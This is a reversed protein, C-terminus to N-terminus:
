GLCSSATVAQQVGGGAVRPAPDDLAPQFTPYFQTRDHLGACRDRIRVRVAELAAVVAFHDLTGDTILDAM